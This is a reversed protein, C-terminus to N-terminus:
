KLDVVTVGYDGEGFQGARHLKVRPDKKFQTWLAARLAGTGKGHIITVSKISAINAEDLYRDVMFWADDGTMGRVDIEPRFDKSVKVRYANVAQQEKESDSVTVRDYNILKLNSINTKTKVIGAQVTVNGNKDPNDLLIGNKNINRMIVEDGKVLDRPLVYEDEPIEVTNYKDDYERMRAKITRKAESLSESFKESDKQRKIEDLQNFIFESTAKAGTIMQQAKQKISEAEKESEALRKRLENETERKYRELEARLNSAIEHEKEMSMRSSELKEIVSEFSKNESNVLEQARRVINEQLGLKESIAFANSKGPTGIILKYTPKLTAIDFECSANKVGNTELAFAKLEAYHTTAACMAGVRLVEELISMALAAGEIPDTGAGLEDFLVLSKDTLRDMISVIGVMHSSFTSLSQEISQEDGIDSLIEDFICVSSPEEAPIHLGSQAMMAFLGITKLAVTKGGTNPGTIVLMRYGNGIEINVPVVKKQDLLPHRAKRLSITRNTSVDPKCANMKYSLDACAFIFSLETINLYNLRLADSIDAVHVSLELLIREIEHAEQSELTRLENNAEVVAMPEIFLTAGSASTDHILGKVENKYESKVPIVYRGSRTTVINEQLIKSYENGSTYKQLLDRIKSSVQRKKRRIDSLAPSAEDAIMDEAPIARTIKEELPRNPILREFIEDLVTEFLRDGRIYDLLIRTTKLVAAVDLLERTSLIADKRAREVSESIDKVRGFSPLGKLGALRKADTTKRQRKLVTEPDSSPILNLALLKGGDTQTLDALITLIKDFELTKISRETNRM